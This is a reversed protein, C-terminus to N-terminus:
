PRQFLYVSSPNVPNPFLFQTWQLKYLKTPSVVNSPIKSYPFITHSDRLKEDDFSTLKVLADKIESSSRCTGLKQANWRGCEEQDAHQDDRGAQILIYM